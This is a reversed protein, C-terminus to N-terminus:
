NLLETQYRVEVRNGGREFVIPTNLYKSRVRYARPTQDGSALVITTTLQRPPARRGEARVHQLAFQAYRKAAAGPTKAQRGRPRDDLVAKLLDANEFASLQHGKISHLEYVGPM